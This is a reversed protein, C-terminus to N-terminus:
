SPTDTSRVLCFFVAIFFIIRNKSIFSIFVVVVATSSQQLLQRGIDVSSILVVGSVSGLCFAIRLWFLWSKQKGTNGYAFFKMQDKLFYCIGVPLAM